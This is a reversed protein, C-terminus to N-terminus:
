RMGGRAEEDAAHPPEAGAVHRALWENQEWLVHLMSERARYGHSEHPLMVLRATGGLGKLAHYFRESQIPFTGSNNDAEGHILLIPEDVADAHMFPSMTFYVESAEWFTREEAQFGFPTLARNYAGSRAIGARFLDSHALLNATMFAGYSHGGIAVRGREGVGRRVVEDVAARASTVLQEVYADNPEREGEGVIPMSPDDLVAWGQTLMPLAGWYSVRVFRYPSDTVQGALDADKYERPYAWMLVPLPGDGEKWGPPLYLTATLQVGDEREYRVLEKKVDALQPTPHPFDTIARLAETGLRRVYYNPPEGVSERRTLVTGDSPRLLEVPWEYHPAQSRWLRETEGSELDLRDLFPRNGEPSAGQGRLYLTGGEDDTLLVHTGSETEDMLPSGPDGYRDEWSRDWLLRPEGRIGAGPAGPQVVWTRLRRDKWWRGHVLALDEDGWQVGSFRLELDLFSDPEAEFPASLVYLRDRAEAVAEPDGGDLAEVWALTAPADARWEVSRPGTPVADFGIPVEEALPLDAVQRVVRGEPDWVEIRRPFRYVPVLYSFPRHVTEVLVYRGDPSPEARVVLAPEGLPTVSGDLGLLAVRARLYHEFLAEDHPSQLLDQYTRAPARRGSTEQIVPGAPIPTAEPPEGRDRAVLRAVLASGDPMWRYPAGYADNLAVDAVRGARGRPVDLTWLEIRDDRTLTFAVRSGDPSWRVNRIRPQEPLGSAPREAGDSIRKLTLDTFYGSRSPGNTRPNIRLGAIRLEPEALDAITLLGPVEMFLIWEGNPGVEAAPTRPQDVLAAMAPPPTRYVQVTPAPEQATSAPEQATSAAPLTTVAVPLTTAAAALALARRLLNM